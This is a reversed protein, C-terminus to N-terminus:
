YNLLLFLGSFAFRLPLGTLNIFIRIKPNENLFCLCTLLLLATVMNTPDLGAESTDMASSDCGKGASIPCQNVQLKDHKVPCDSLPSKM